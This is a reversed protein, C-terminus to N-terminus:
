NFASDIKACLNNYRSWLTLKKFLPKELLYIRALGITVCVLYIALVCLIAYVPLFNSASHGNIDLLSGWLFKRMTDSNAHILLVDFTALSITNIIKSNKIKVSKFFSFLCVALALALVKQANIVFYFPDISIKFKYNVFDILVISVLCLLMIIISFLCSIKTKELFKVSYLRLYGGILYMTIYWGIECFVEHRFLTSLITFFFVLIALLVVYNKKEFFKVMKNIFPALLYLFFFTETFYVNADYAINFITRVFTGISFAEYGTTIFILYIVLKYFKIELYLRVVKNFSFRQKVMFYGTILIFGNIMAKGSFGFIQLFVMNFTINNYDFKGSVVSNFVLHHAIIALMMFIRFLELNSNRTKESSIAM